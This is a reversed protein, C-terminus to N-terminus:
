AGGGGRGGCVADVPCPLRAHRTCPLSVRGVDCVSFLLTACQLAMAAAVAEAPTTTAGMARATKLIAGITPAGLALQPRDPRLLDCLQSACAPIPPTDVVAVRSHPNVQLRPGHPRRLPQTCHM